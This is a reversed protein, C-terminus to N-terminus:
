VDSLLISEFHRLQWLYRCRRVSMYGRDLCSNISLWAMVRSLLPTPVYVTVVAPMTVAVAITVSM